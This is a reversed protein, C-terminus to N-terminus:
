PPRRTTGIMAHLAPRLGPLAGAARRMLPYARVAKIRFSLNTDTSNVDVRRIAYPGSGLHTAFAVQIGSDAVAARVTANHAGSPYAFARPWEGTVEALRDAAVYTQAHLKAPSLGPLLTHDLGHLGIDIGATQMAVVQEATVLPEAPMEPMWQSTGGLLGSCVFVTAPVGMGALLPMALDHVSQYGDDFTLLFRRPGHGGALYEALTLPRWGREQLSLLHGTLETTSVFLNHPDARDSRCGVGHYMLVLARSERFAPVPSGQRGVIGSVGARRIYRVLM